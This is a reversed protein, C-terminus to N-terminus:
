YGILYRILISHTPLIFPIDRVAKCKRGAVTNALVWKGGKYALDVFMYVTAINALVDWADTPETKYVVVTGPCVTGDGGDGGGGGSGSAPGTKGPAGATGPTRKELNTNTDLFDRKAQGGLHESEFYRGGPLAHAINGQSVLATFVALVIRHPLM